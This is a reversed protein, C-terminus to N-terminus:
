FQLPIGESTKGVFGNRVYSIRNVYAEKIKQMIKKENWNSPSFSSYKQLGKYKYIAGYVEHKNCPNVIKVISNPFNHISHFGLLRGKEIIPNLIHKWNVTPLKIPFKALAEILLANAESVIGMLNIQLYQLAKQVAEKGHKRASEVVQVIKIRLAESQEQALTRIEQQAQADYGELDEETTFAHGYTMAFEAGKSGLLYATDIISTAKNILSSQVHLGLEISEEACYKFEPELEESIFSFVNEAVKAPHSFTYCMGDFLSSMARICPQVTKYAQDAFTRLTSDVFVAVTRSCHILTKAIRM